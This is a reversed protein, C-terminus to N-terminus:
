RRAAAGAIAGVTAAALTTQSEPAASCTSQASRLRAALDQRRDVIWGDDVVTGRPIASRAFPRATARGRRATSSRPDDANIVAFDRTRTRSSERRRRPM